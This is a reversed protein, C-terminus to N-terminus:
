FQQIETNCQKFGNALVGVLGKSKYDLYAGTVAANIFGCLAFGIIGIGSVISIFGVLTRICLSFVGCMRIPKM